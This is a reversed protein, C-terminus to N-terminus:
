ASPSGSITAGAPHALVVYQLTCYEQLDGPSLNELKLRGSQLTINAKDRNGEYVQAFRPDLNCRMEAVAFGTEELLREIDKRAFFRIHTVDLLGRTDYRWTGENHLQSLVFLNRVNPICIAVQADETLLPRVRLLVRWPDYFHELVDGAIFTDITGPLIAEAAFDIDEFKGEIVRDLRTRAIAAAEANVEIGTYHAGPFRERVFAGLRGAACGLELARRPARSLIMGLPKNLGEFYATSVVADPGLHTRWAPSPPGAAPSDDPVGTM